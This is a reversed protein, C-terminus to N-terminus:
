YCFWAFVSGFFNCALIKPSYLHLYEWCVFSVWIWCCIFFNICWSWTSNKGPDFPHNSIHFDILTIHWMWLISVCVVQNGWYICFFSHYFKVDMMWSYFFFFFVFTLVSSSELMIFAIRPLGVAMISSLWLFSFAKKGFCSVPFSAWEWM